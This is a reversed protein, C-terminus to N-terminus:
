VNMNLGRSLSMRFKENKPDKSVHIKTTYQVIDYYITYLIYYLIIIIIKHNHKKTDYKEPIM